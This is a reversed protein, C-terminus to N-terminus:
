FAFYKRLSGLVFCQLYDAGCQKGFFFDDDFINGIDQVHVIKYCQEFIHAHFHM